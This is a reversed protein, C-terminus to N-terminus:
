RGGRVAALLEALILIVITIELIQSRTSEVEQKLLRYARGVLGLKSEVSDRWAPVRFRNIAAVYVRALYVDGVSKIANDVRETFETLEMFRRLVNRTLAGYPSSLIRPRNKEVHAYVRTLEADLLQDYFRFELLQSTALELLHPVILSGSPDVVLASNWDVVVLDDALYSFANRLIDDKVAASLHRDSTEGLLLKATTESRSIETLSADAIEQAFIVTYNEPELPAIPPHSKEITDGLERTLTGLVRLADADLERADYLADCFATLQSLKAGADLPVEYLFSVAGFEFVHATVPARLTTKLAAIEIEREGMDVELPRSAIRLGEVLPGGLVLRRANAIRAEAADLAITDGADFVRYCLLKGRVIAADVPVDGSVDSSRAPLADSGDNSMAAAYM